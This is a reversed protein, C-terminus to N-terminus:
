YNDMTTADHRLFDDRDDDTASAAHVGIAAMRCAVWSCVRRGALWGALGVSWGVLRGALWDALWGALWGGGLWGASWGVLNRGFWWYQYTQRRRGSWMSCEGEGDGGRDEGSDRRIYTPGNPTVTPAASTSKWRNTNAERAVASTPLNSIAQLVPFRGRDLKLGPRTDM